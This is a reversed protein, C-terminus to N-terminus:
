NFVRKNRKSSIIKTDVGVFNLGGFLRAHEIKVCKDMVVKIGALCAKEAIKHNVVGIQLWLCGIERKITDTLVDDLQSPKRFCVVADVQMPIEKLSSYCPQGLITTASPNVPIVKYDHHILYKAVFNSPRHWRESLGVIAVSRLNDFLSKLSNDDQLMM